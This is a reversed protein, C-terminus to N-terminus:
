QVRTERRLTHNIQEWVVYGHCKRFKTSVTQWPPIEQPLSRWHYGSYLIYFIGNVVEILNANPKPGLQASTKTASTRTTGM